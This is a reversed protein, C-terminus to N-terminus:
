ESEFDMKSYNTQIYRVAEARTRFLEGEKEEWVEGKKMSIKECGQIPVMILDEMAKLKILDPQISVVKAEIVKVKTGHGKKNLSIIIGYCTMGERIWSGAKGPISDRVTAKEDAYKYDKIQKSKNGSGCSWISIALIIMLTVSILQKM